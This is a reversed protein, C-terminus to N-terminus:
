NSSVGCTLLHHRLFSEIKNKNNDTKARFTILHEVLVFVFTSKFNENVSLFFSVSNIHAYINVFNTDTPGITTTTSERRGVYQYIEIISGTNTVTKRILM